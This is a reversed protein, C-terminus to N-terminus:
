SLVHERRVRAHARLLEGEHVLLQVRADGGCEHVVLPLVTDGSHLHGRPFVKARALSQSHLIEGRGGPPGRLRPAHCRPACYPDPEHTHDTIHTARPRGAMNNHMNRERRVQMNILRKGVAAPDPRRSLCPLFSHSLCPLSHSLSPAATPKRLRTKNYRSRVQPSTCCMVVHSLWYIVYQSLYIVYQLHCETSSM